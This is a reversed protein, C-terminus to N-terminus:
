IKNWTDEKKVNKNWFDVWNKCSDHETANVTHACSKLLPILIEQLERFNTFDTMAKQHYLTNPQKKM